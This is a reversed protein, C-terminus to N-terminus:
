AGSLSPLVLPQALRWARVRQEQCCANQAPNTCDVFHLMSGLLTEVRRVRRVTGDTLAVDYEASTGLPVSHGQEWDPPGSLRKAGERLGASLNGGGLATYIEVSLPDLRVQRREGIYPRGM